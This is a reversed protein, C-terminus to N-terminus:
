KLDLDHLIRRDFLIWGTRTQASQKGLHHSADGRSLDERSRGKERDAGKSYKECCSGGNVIRFACEVIKYEIDPKILDAYLFESDKFAVKQGVLDWREVWKPPVTAQGSSGGSLRTNYSLSVYTLSVLYINLSQTPIALKKRM